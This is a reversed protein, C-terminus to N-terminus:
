EQTVRAQGERVTEENVDEGKVYVVGLWRGYKGKGWERRIEIEVEGEELRKELYEKALLGKPREEGTIEWTDIGYLRIYQEGVTHVTVQSTGVLM